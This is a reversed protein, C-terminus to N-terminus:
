AKLWGRAVDGALPYEYEEGRHVRWAAYIHFALFVPIAVGCTLASVVTGFLSWVLAQLAHFEAYRSEGRKVVFVCLPAIFWAFATGAHAIMAALRENSSPVSVVQLSSENM